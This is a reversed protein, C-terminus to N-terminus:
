LVSSSYGLDEPKILNHIANKYFANYRHIYQMAVRLNSLINGDNHIDVILINSEIIYFKRSGQVVKRIFEIGRSGIVKNKFQVILEDLKHEGGEFDFFLISAQPALFYHRDLFNQITSAQINRISGSKAEFHILENRFNAICDYDGGSPANKIKVGFSASLAKLEKISLYALLLEFTKSFRYQNMESCEFIYNALNSHIPKIGEYIMKKVETRIEKLNFYEIFDWGPKVTHMQAVDFIKNTEPNILTETMQSESIEEFGKSLLYDKVNFMEIFNGTRIGPVSLQHSFFYNLTAM